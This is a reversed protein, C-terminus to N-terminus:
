LRTLLPPQTQTSWLMETEPVTLHAVDDFRAFKLHHDTRIRDIDEFGLEVNILGYVRVFLM